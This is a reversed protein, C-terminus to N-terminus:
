SSLPVAIFTFTLPPPFYMTWVSKFPANVRKVPLNIANYGICFSNLFDQNENWKVLHIFHVSGSTAQAKIFIYVFSVFKTRDPLAHHCLATLSTIIWTRQIVQIIWFSEKHIIHLTDFFRVLTAKFHEWIIEFLEIYLCCDNICRSKLPYLGDQVEPIDHKSVTTEVNFKFAFTSNQEVTFLFFQWPGYMRRKLDEM